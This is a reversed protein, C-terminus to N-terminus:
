CLLMLADIDSHRTLRLDNTSVLQREALCLNHMVTHLLLLSIISMLASYTLHLNRLKICFTLMCLLAAVMVSDPELELWIRCCINPWM